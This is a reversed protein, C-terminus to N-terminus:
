GDLLSNSYMIYINDRCSKFCKCGMTQSCYSSNFYSCFLKRSLKFFCIYSILKVTIDTIWFAVESSFFAYFLTIPQLVGRLFYWKINGGLFTNMSEIDGHYIKGFSGEAVHRKNGKQPPDPFM